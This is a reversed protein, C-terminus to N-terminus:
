LGAKSPDIGNEILRARVAEPDAGKKLAKRANFLTAEADIKNLKTASGPTMMGPAPPGPINVPAVPIDISDMPEAGFAPNEASFTRPTRSATAKMRELGTNIIAELDDLAATFDKESQSQNMRAIAETAKQGEIQTIAGGGRLSEFAQLFNKGKIQDIRAQASAAPSGPIAGIFPVQGKFINPQGVVASFGEDEKLAKILAKAEDAQAQVRGVGAQAEAIKEAEIGAQKEMAEVNARFQPTETMKPTVEYTEQIGGLPNRVSLSGGLNMIQDARKMQLYRKQDEQPLKSYYNWEKVAAVDQGTAVMSNRALESQALQKRLQFEQDERDYDQKSKLRGFVSLDAM